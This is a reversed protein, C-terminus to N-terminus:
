FITPNIGTKRKAFILMMINWVVMSASTSIAAGEVKLTPLLITNLLINVIIGCVISILVLSEKKAMTLYDSYCRSPDLGLSKGFKISKKKNKSFVGAVFEFRNDFRAALRHTYGIFSNPGGGIFGIKIKSKFNLQDNRLQNLKGFVIKDKKKM